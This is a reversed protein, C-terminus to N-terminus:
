WMSVGRMEQKLKYFQGGSPPGTALSQRKDIATLGDVTVGYDDVMKQNTETVKILRPVSKL